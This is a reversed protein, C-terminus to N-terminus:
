FVINEDPIVTSQAKYEDDVDEGWKDTSNLELLRILPQLKLCWQETSRRRYHFDADAVLDEVPNFEMNHDKLAIVCASEKSMTEVKGSGDINGEIQELIFKCCNAGLRSARM